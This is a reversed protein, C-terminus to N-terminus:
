FVFQVNLYFTQQRLLILINYIYTHVSCLRGIALSGNAFLSSGYIEM